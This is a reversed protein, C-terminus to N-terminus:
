VAVRQLHDCVITVTEMLVESAGAKLGNIEIKSPWAQELHYRAVPQGAVDFMVLTANKRATPADTLAADHWAQVELGRTMGRKLTVTPPTRKGPLKKLIQQNGGSSIMDVTEIETTIGTLESFSAIEQGDATISFRAAALGGPPVQASAERVTAGDVLAAALVAGGVVAAGGLLDRRSVGERSQGEETAKPMDLEPEKANPLPCHRAWKLARTHPSDLSRQM